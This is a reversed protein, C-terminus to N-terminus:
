FGAGRPATSLAAGVQSVLLNTEYALMGLDAEEGALMAICAGAGAATVLLFAHDMEVVTQRVEGGGFHRGTGKALSQFASAMASLHEADPQSMNGSRGLLLGDASLVVARNAGATREVLGDLLWNLEGVGSRVSV